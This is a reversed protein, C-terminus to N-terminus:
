QVTGAKSVGKTDFSTSMFYHKFSATLLQRENNVTCQTSGFEQVAHLGCIVKLTTM